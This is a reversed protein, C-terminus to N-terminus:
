KLHTSFDHKHANWQFNGEEKYKNNDGPGKELHVMVSEGRFKNKQACGYRLFAHFTSNVYIPQNYMM